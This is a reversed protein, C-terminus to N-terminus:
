YKQSKQGLIISDKGEGVTAGGIKHNIPIKPNAMNLTIKM